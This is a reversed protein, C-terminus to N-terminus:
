GDENDFDLTQQQFKEAYWQKYSKKSIWWSFINESAERNWKENYTVRIDEATVDSDSISGSDSFGVVLWPSTQMIERRTAPSIYFSYGGSDVEDPRLRALWRRTQQYFNLQPPPTFGENDFSQRRIEMIAKIWKEKVYPYREIDRQTHKISAMPCCICGIRHYGEDYLECHPVQVVDNLFTWVDEDTWEIIPSIIIQDKGSVCNIMQEKHESWQDLQHLRKAKNKAARIKRAKEKDSWEGFGNLDGSFKHNSVEVEKRKARRASEAHRVGVLTVKNPAKNEKFVSCCWRIRM